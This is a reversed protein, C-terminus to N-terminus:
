RDLVDPAPLERPAAPPSGLEARRGSEATRFASVLDVFRTFNGAIEDIAKSLEATGQKNKMAIARLQEMSETIERAGSSNESISTAVETTIRDLLTVQSEVVNGSQMQEDVSAKVEDTIQNLNKVTELIDRGGTELENNAATIEAIINATSGSADLITTLSTGSEVALGVIKEIRTSIDKVIVTISQSNAATNEALKRIEDAVVAFGKGHEGAHAAEIAANMALLNTQEAISQIVTIIENIQSSSEEVERIADVLDDVRDGGTKAESLLRKAFTDANGVNKAVSLINSTMQEIASSTESIAVSQKQMNESIKLISKLLEDIAINVSAFANKQQETTTGVQGISRMIEEVSSVSREISEIETASIKATELVTAHMRSLDTNLNATGGKINNVIYNMTDIFHNFHFLLEGIEDNTKVTIRRTLDGKGQALDKSIDRARELPGLFVNLTIVVAAAVAFISIWLTIAAFLAVDDIEKTAYLDTAPIALAISTKAAFPLIFVAHRKGEILMPTWQANTSTAHVDRVFTPSSADLSLLTKGADDVIYARNKPFSAVLLPRVDRVRSLVACTGSASSAIAAFYENTSIHMRSMAATLDSPIAFEGNTATRHSFGDAGREWVHLTGDLGAILTFSVPVHTGRLLISLVPADNDIKRKKGRVPVTYIDAIDQAIVRQEALASEVSAASKSLSAFLEGSKQASVIRIEASYHIVNVITLSLLFVFLIVSIFKDRLPIRLDTALDEAPMDRVQHSFWIAAIAYVLATIALMWFARMLIVQFSISGDLILAVQSGIGVLLVGVLYVRTYIKGLPIHAGHRWKGIFFLIVAFVALLCVAYYVFLLPHSSLKGFLLPTFIFHISFAIAPALLIGRRLQSATKRRIGNIENM